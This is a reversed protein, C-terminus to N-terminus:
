LLGNRDMWVKGSLFVGTPDYKERLSKWQKLDDGYWEDIIPKLGLMKGDESETDKLEATEPGLFNKAWHPKGGADSVIDEFERYWKGVPSNVGFPRYMTANIYLTLNSNTVNGHPSAYPRDRPNIDLLPRLTNGTIAGRRSASFEQTNPEINRDGSNPVSMNSCRVEVPSHVYYINDKAAAEIKDRLARLVNPGNDLPMGWENVFQSFLCDMNLGEVSGQVAESGTGSGLTDEMGYQRSFIFREVSPTLSPWLRVSVWLLSEYFLRGLWTGYWSPRPASLPLESKSARWLICREAYPFWWVRIYESATWLNDWERILTEFTIVHQTSHITYAPVTRLTAYVIIGLKGLSLLAARFLTPNEDPSCTLLEGSAIMITLSVIQQSVLGHYASSGHTGTSIIGAVSQDSISGLNQMALGKRKLVENLQHIRIGAEVTVDTYLGSAHPKFSVAKSLKDLNVLWQSTMTLDSPSHASGVVMITKGLDRARKVIAQLEEISAPQFYLSPRSWFTGAWTKHSHFRKATTSNRLSM